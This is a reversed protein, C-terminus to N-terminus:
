LVQVVFDAQDGDTLGAAKRVAANVPLLYSSVTRDYFISTRWTTDGITVEVRLSGFGRSMM